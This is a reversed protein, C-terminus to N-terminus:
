GGMRYCSAIPGVVGRLRIEGVRLGRWRVDEEEREREGGGRCLLDAPLSARGRHVPCGGEEGRRALCLAM